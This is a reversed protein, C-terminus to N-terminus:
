FFHQSKACAVFFGVKVDKRGLREAIRVAVRRDAAYVLGFVYKGNLKFLSDPMWEKEASEDDSDSSVDKENGSTAASSM